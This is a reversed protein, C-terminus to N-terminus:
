RPLQDILRAIQQGLELDAGNTQRVTWETIRGKANYVFDVEAWRGSLTFRYRERWQQHTVNVVVDLSGVASTVQEFLVTLFPRGDVPTFGHPPNPRVPVVASTLVDKLRKGVLEDFDPDASKGVPCPPGFDGGADYTTDLKAASGERRVTWRVRYPLHEVEVEYGDSLLQQTATAVKAEIGEATPPQIPPLFGSRPARAVLLEKKARTVATYSWRLFEAHGDPARGDFDVIATPWEGGQAKHCTVAYGYKVQLANFYPDDSLAERFAQVVSISKM